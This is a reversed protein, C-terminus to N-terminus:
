AGLRSEGRDHAAGSADRGRSGDAISAYARQIQEPNLTEGRVVVNLTRVAIAADVALSRNAVYWRDLALKDADQLLVNGNVQAWGTLGPRVACRLAGDEGMAAVTEPLLPRPGVLSMERRLVNWLEPLEDLRTRRLFRGVPTVRQADPLPQAAGAPPATMSRFKIMRFTRGGQGARCQVFLVPRGMTLLVALASLAMLPLALVAALATLPLELLALDGLARHPRRHAAAEGGALGMEGILLDNVRTVDFREQALARSESGMRRVLQPNRALRLMVEGLARADRPPVLFGNHGEHVTERCGPMDTTVVARGTALAELITRPLGERYYSPLVFVSAAALFPRVDRTEGLYEVDGAAIWRDLEARTVGTPNPDPPGLIRFRAEPVRRRVQRAAAVFEELGKDRMLRAILLFIPPGDPVPRQAFQGLDIGSGPVQVVRQRTLIGHRRMEAEDDANFVFVREARAVAIRYLRSVLARVARRRTGGGDSYLHGLGSVMAFFRTGGGALRAAIGGYVIPKQTYALVVGPAESRILRRLHLLTRLDRWPNMGTRDMPVCRWAIGMGALEAVVQADEDPACAIVEHGEAVIRRLLAKRFNVLSYALSAIVLVKM